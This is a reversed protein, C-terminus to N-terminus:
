RIPQRARDHVNLWDELMRLYRPTDDVFCMHRCDAMLEWRAHPIRDYMTKAVLPSCLDQTGSVILVPQAIAGLRDTYDWTRFIGTPSLENDGQTALYSARGIRKPRRLCTPDTDSTPSACFLEMFHAEAARFAPDDYTDTAEAAAVAAREEDSLYRLRRHQEAGWLACSSLTSSLIVSRIGSPQYDILYEIALMGGWSQGLLHCQRIGLHERLAILEEDWTRYTWLEDHGEVYSGGCGLQDYMVLTRGDRDALCDLVEFYNHTSGPGGHLLVLPAKGAIPTDPTVIRYYTSFGRYPMTGEIINM